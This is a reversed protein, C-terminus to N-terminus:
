LSHLAAIDGEADKSTFLATGMVLANAGSKVIEAANLMNIGGDVELIPTKGRENCLRKIEVMRAPADSAMKQGGFGPEVSMLLILGVDDLYPLLTEVPTQPKISVGARLGLDNIAKIAARLDKHAELHLTIGDAGADAFTKVYRVGEDVMLHCDLYLSTIRKLAKVIAPGYSINPVFNGDMVDIHLWDAKAREMRRVEDELHLIDAALISPAAKIM